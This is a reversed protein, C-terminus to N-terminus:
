SAPAAPAASQSLERAIQAVDKGPRGDIVAKLSPYLDKAQAVTGHTLKNFTSATIGEPAFVPAITRQFLRRTSHDFGLGGVELACNLRTIATELDPIRAEPVDDIMFQIISVFPLQKEWKILLNATFPPAKSALELLQRERDVAHPIQNAELFAVLGAFDVFSTTASM